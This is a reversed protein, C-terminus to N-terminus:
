RTLFVYRLDSDTVAHLFVLSFSLSISISQPLNLTSPYRSHTSPVIAYFPIIIIICVLLVRSKQSACMFWIFTELLCRLQVSCNSSSSSIATV